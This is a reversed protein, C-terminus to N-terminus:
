AEAQAHLTRDDLKGAVDTAHRVCMAGFEILLRLMRDDVEHLGLLTDLVLAARHAETGIRAFQTLARMRQSSVALSLDLLTMAMTILEVVFVTLFERLLSQDDGTGQRIVAQDLHDLDLIMRPKHSRLSMRLELGARVIRMRQEAVEDLCRQGVYLDFLCLLM